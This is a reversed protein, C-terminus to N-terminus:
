RTRPRPALRPSLDPRYRSRAASARSPRPYERVCRQDEIGAVSTLAAALRAALFVRDRLDFVSAAGDIVEAVAGLRHLLLQEPLIPRATELQVVIGRPRHSRRSTRRAGRRRDIGRRGTLAGPMFRVHARPKPFRQEIWQAVPASPLNGSSIMAKERLA